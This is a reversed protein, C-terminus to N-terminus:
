AKAVGKQSEVADLYEAKAKVLAAEIESM